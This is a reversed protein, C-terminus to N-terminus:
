GCVIFALAQISGIKLWGQMGFQALRMRCAAAVAPHAHLRRILDDEQEYVVRVELSEEGPAYLLDLAGKSNTYAQTSNDIFEALAHWPTYSLRRYSTIADLGIRLELAM